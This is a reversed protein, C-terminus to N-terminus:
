DVSVRTVDVDVARIEFRLEALWEAGAAHEHAVEVDDFEVVFDAGAIENPNRVSSARGRRLRFRSIKTWAVSSQKGGFNLQSCPRGRGCCSPHNPKRSM